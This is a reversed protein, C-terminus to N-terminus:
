MVKKTVHFGRSLRVALARYDRSLWTMDGDRSLRMGIALGGRSSRTVIVHRDRSPRAALV